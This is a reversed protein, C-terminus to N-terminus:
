AAQPEQRQLRGNLFAVFDREYLRHGYIAWAERVLPNREHFDEIARIRSEFVSGELVGARHKLFATEAQNMVLTVLGALYNNQEATLQDLSTVDMLEALEKAHQGMYNAWNSAQLSWHEYSASRLAKTNQRLQGALYVLTVVVAIAGFFEGFNGLLQALDQIDM